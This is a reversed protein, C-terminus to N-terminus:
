DEKSHLFVKMAEKPTKKCPSCAFIGCFAVMAIGFLTYLFILNWFGIKWLIPSRYCEEQSTGFIWLNGWAFWVIYTGFITAKIWLFNRTQQSRDKTGKPSAFCKFIFRVFSYLAVLAFHAITWLALRFECSSYHGSQSTYLIIFIFNAAICFLFTALGLEKTSPLLSPPRM